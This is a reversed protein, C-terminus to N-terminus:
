IYKSNIKIMKNFDLNEDNDEVFAYSQEFDNKIIEEDSERKEKKNSSIEEWDDIETKVKKGPSKYEKKKYMNIKKNVYYFNPNHNHRMLEEKSNFLKHCIDCNYKHANLHANLGHISDFKKGCHKCFYNKKSLRSISYILTHNIKSDSKYFIKLNKNKRIKKPFTYHKKSSLHKHLEESETAVFDCISCRYELIKDKLQTILAAENKKQIKNLQNPNVKSNNKSSKGNNNSIVNIMNNVNPTSYPSRGKFGYINENIFNTSIQKNISNTQIAEKANNKNTSKEFFENKKKPQGIPNEKILYQSYDDINSNSNINNDIKPSPDSYARQHHDISPFFKEQSISSLKQPSKEIQHLEQYLNTKM